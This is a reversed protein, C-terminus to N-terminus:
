KEIEAPIIIEIKLGQPQNISMKLQYNKAYFLELRQKINSLGIGKSSQLPELSTLPGNDSVILLVNNDIKEAKILLVTQTNSKNLVHKIVNEILPQILFNPLMVQLTDPQIQWVIKLRKGFRISEIDLYKEMVNLDEELPVRVTPSNDLSFRLFTALKALMDSTKEGDGRIALNSAANLSNFLFHPNLQYRLLELKARENDAKIELIRKNQELLKIHFKIGSYFATWVLLVLLSNSYFFFIAYFPIENEIWQTFMEPYIFYWIYLKKGATWVLSLLNCSVFAVILFIVFNKHEFKKYIARLVTSILFGTFSFISFSILTNVPPTYDDFNFVINDLSFTASYIIWGCVQFIWYLQRKTYKEYINKVEGFHM